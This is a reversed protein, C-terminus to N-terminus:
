QIVKVVYRKPRECRVVAKSDGMWIVKYRDKSTCSDVNGLEVTMLLGQDMQRDIIWLSGYVPFLLFSIVFALLLVIKTFSSSNQFRVAFGARPTRLHPPRRHPSLSLAIYFLPAIILCAVATPLAENPGFPKSEMGGVARSISIALRLCSIIAVSLALAVFMRPFLKKPQTSILMIIPAIGVTTALIFLILLKLSDRLIDSLSAISLYNLGLSAFQVSYIAASIVVGVATVVSIVEIVTTLHKRM